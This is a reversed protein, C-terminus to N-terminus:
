RGYKGLLTNYCVNQVASNGKHIMCSAGKINAEEAPSQGNQIDFVKTLLRLVHTDTNKWM